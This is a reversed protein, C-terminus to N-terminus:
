EIKKVCALLIICLVSNRKHERRINQKVSFINELIIKRNKKEGNEIKNHKVNANDLDENIKKIYKM